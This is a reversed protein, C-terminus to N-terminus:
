QCRGSVILGNEIRADAILDKVAHQALQKLYYRSVRGELRIRNETVDVQVAGLQSYGTSKLRNRAAAKLGGVLGENGNTSMM